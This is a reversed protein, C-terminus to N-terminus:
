LVPYDNLFIIIFCYIFRQYIFIPYYNIQMMYRTNTDETLMGWTDEFTKTNVYDRYKWLISMCFFPYYLMLSAAIVAIVSSIVETYGQLVFYKFNLLASFIIELYLEVIARM